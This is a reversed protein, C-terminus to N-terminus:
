SMQANESSKRTERPTEGFIRLYQRYFASYDGFGCAAAALAAPKGTRIMRRALLLRKILVFEWVTSGTSRRFMRNLTSKSFFFYRELEELGSIETLHANIYDVIEAVEAAEKDPRRSPPPAQNEMSYLECLLPPLNAALHLLFDSEAAAPRCIRAFVDAFFGENGGTPLYLNGCGPEHGLFLARLPAYPGNEPFFANLDFHVAVREYPTNERIHLKHTEGERMLLICGPTLPYDRGEVTYFGEGAIFYYVECHRHVHLPFNKEEPHSDISHHAMQAGSEAFFLQM